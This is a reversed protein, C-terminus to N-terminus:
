TKLTEELGIGESQLLMSQVKCSDHSSSLCGAKKQRNRKGQRGGLESFTMAKM